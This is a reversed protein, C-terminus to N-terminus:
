GRECANRTERMGKERGPVSAQVASKKSTTKALAPVDAWFNEKRGEGGQQTTEARGGIGGLGGAGGMGRKEEGKGRFNRRQVRVRGKKRKHKPKAAM